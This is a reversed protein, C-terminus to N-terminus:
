SASARISRTYATLLKAVEEAQGSLAPVFAHAKQWVVLDQFSQAPMRDM